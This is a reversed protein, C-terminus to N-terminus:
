ARFDENDESSETIETNTTVIRMPNTCTKHLVYDNIARSLGKPIETCFVSQEHQPQFVLPVPLRLNDSVDVHQLNVDRLTDLLESWTNTEFKPLRTLQVSRLTKAHGLLIRKLTAPDSIGDGRLRLAQLHPIILPSSDYGFTDALPNYPLVLRDRGRNAFHIALQKLNPSARLIHIMSPRYHPLSRRFDSGDIGASLRLSKLSQFLRSLTDDLELTSLDALDQMARLELTHLRIESHSIAVLLRQAQPIHLEKPDHTSGSTAPITIESYSASHWWWEIIPNTRSLSNGRSEQTRTYISSLRSLLSIDQHLSHEIYSIFSQQAEFRELYGDYLEHLKDTDDSDIEDDLYREILEHIPDDDDDYDHEPWVETFYHLLTEMASESNAM